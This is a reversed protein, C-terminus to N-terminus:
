RAVQNPYGIPYGNYEGSSPAPFGEPGSRLRGGWDSRFEEPIIVCEPPFEDGYFSFNHNSGLIIIFDKQSSNAAFYKKLQSLAGRERAGYVLRGIEPPYPLNTPPKNDFWRKIPDFIDNLAKEDEVVRHLTQTRGRIVQIFEGGNDILKQKQVANLSEVKEPLGRPFIQQDYMQRLAVRKDQPITTISFDKAAAQESFVPVNPFREIYNAIKLQSAAVQNNKETTTQAGTLEDAAHTQPLFIARQGCEKADVAFSANGSLILTLTFVSKM